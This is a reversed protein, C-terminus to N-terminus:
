RARQTIRRRPSRSSPCSSAQTSAWLATTTDRVRRRPSVPSTPPIPIGTCRMRITVVMLGGGGVKDGWRQSWERIVAEWKIQFERNRHDGRTWELAKVAQLDRDPAGSPLYVMLRIGRKHLPEYLDGILDRKSCHSSSYGVLKDYTDNPSCFYGSNQGLTLFLFKAGTSSIEEALAEVDFQDVVSNWKEPTAEEDLIYLDSLFHIFVGWGAKQFWDTRQPQEGAPAEANTEVTVAMMLGLLVLSHFRSM